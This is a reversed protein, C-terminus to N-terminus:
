CSKFDFSMPRRGRRSSWAAITDQYIALIRKHISGPDVDVALQPPYEEPNDFYDLVKTVLTAPGPEFLYKAPLLERLGGRNSAIASTGLNVSEIVSMPCPEPSLSPHITLGSGAVLDHFENLPLHGHYQVNRHTEAFQKALSAFDGGGAIDIHLDSERLLQSAANLFMPFGKAVSLRGGFVISNPIADPRKSKKRALTFGVNYLVRIPPKLFEAVSDKHFNSVAIVLDCKNLFYMMLRRLGLGLIARSATTMQLYNALEEQPSLSYVSGNLFPLDTLSLSRYDHIHGIIPIRMDRAVTLGPIVSLLIGCHILDPQFEDAVRRCHMILRSITQPNGLKAYLGEITRPRTQNIFLSSEYPLSRSVSDNFRTSCFRLEVNEDTSVLKALNSMAEEAGSFQVTDTIMLVRVKEIKWFDRQRASLIPPTEQDIPQSRSQHEAYVEGEIQPPLDM